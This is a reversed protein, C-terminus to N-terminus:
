CVHLHFLLVVTPLPANGYGAGSSCVKHGPEGPEPPGNTTTAPSYIHLYSYRSPNHARSAAAFAFMSATASTPRPRLGFRLRLRLSPAPAPDTPAM